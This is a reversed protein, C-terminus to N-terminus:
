EEFNKIESGNDFKFPYAKAELVYVEKVDTTHPHETNYKNKAIENYNSFTKHNLDWKSFIFLNYKQDSIIGVETTDNTEFSLM